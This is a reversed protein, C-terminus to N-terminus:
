CRALEVAIQVASNGAGVVIIRQNQFPTPNKPNQYDKSHLNMGQFQEVGPIQPLYPRSFGGTAAIIHKAYHIM